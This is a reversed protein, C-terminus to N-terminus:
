ESDALAPLKAQFLQRSQPRKHFYRETDPKILEQVPKLEQTQLAQLDHLRKVMATFVLYVCLVFILNQSTIKTLRTCDGCYWGRYGFFCPLHVYFQDHQKRQSMCPPHWMINRLNGEAVIEQWKRDTDYKVQVYIRSNQIWLAEKPAM